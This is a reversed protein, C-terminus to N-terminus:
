AEKHRMEEASQAAAARKEKLYTRFLRYGIYSFIGV